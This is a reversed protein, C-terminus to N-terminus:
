SIHESEITDMIIIPLSSRPLDVYFTSGENLESEVWIKGGHADVIQKTIFLGLGLGSVERALLGREYRKFIKDQDSKPIGLGHDKVIVRVFEQHNKLSIHISKGQGYRISNTIINTFVQDIRLPDWEGNAKEMNEIVAHGSGSAEFQDKTRTLIDNLIQSLECPEKKLSLKGTRIRSIDLMDDV